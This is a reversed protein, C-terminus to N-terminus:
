NQSCFAGYNDTTVSLSCLPMKDIAIQICLSVTILDQPGNNYWEDAPKVEHKLMIICPGMDCPDTCMEQFNFIDTQGHGTYEGCMDGM